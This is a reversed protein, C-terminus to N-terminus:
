LGQHQKNGTLLEQMMGQKILRTKGIRQQLARIVEDIVAHISKNLSCEGRCFKNLRVILIDVVTNKISALDQWDVSYRYDLDTQFFQVRGKLTAVKRHSFNSM